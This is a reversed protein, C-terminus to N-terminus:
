KKSEIRINIKGAMPISLDGGPTGTAKITGSIQQTFRAGVTWGSAEEIEIQGKREGTLEYSMSMTGMQMPKAAPNSTIKGTVDIIAIGNKRDKLTCTSAWTMPYPRTVATQRSWTDGIDVASEPFYAGIAQEMSEKIAEAGFQEKFQQEMMPRLSEDPVEAEKIVKEYLAEIGRVETVRGTPSVRLTFSQGLLAAMPKVAAPPNASPKASDYEVKTGGMAMTMQVSTYTVKCAAIGDSGVEQVEFKYGMGMTQSINMEQNMVSQTLDLEIVNLLNFSQGAKLHLGLTVKEIGAPLAMGALLFILIACVVSHRGIVGAHKVM